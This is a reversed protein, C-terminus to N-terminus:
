EPLNRIRYSREGPAIMGLRRAEREVADPDSLAARRDRLERNERLLEGYRDREARSDRWADALNIVPNLYSLMVAFLVLVLAIRGLRDWDIRTRARRRPAVRVRRRATHARTSM